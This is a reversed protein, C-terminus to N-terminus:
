LNYSSNEYNISCLYGSSPVYEIEIVDGNKIDNKVKGVIKPIANKILFVKKPLTIHTGFLQTKEKVQDIVQIECPESQIISKKFEKANEIRTTTKAYSKQESASWRNLGKITKYIDQIYKLHEYTYPVDATYKVDIGLYNSIERSYKIYQLHSYIHQFSEINSLDEFTGNLGEGGDIELSSFIQYRKFIGEFFIFLKSFYKINNISKGEWDTFDFNLDSKATSSDINFIHNYSLMNNLATGKFEFSKTGLALHGHIDELYIHAHSEKDVLWIRQIAPLKKPSITLNGDEHYNTIYEILKSGKAEFSSNSVVLERGHEVLNKHKNLFDERKEPKISMTFPVNEKAHLQILSCGDIYQSKISFRSDLDELYMRNAEHVNSISQSLRSTSVGTFSAMLTNIADDKAPLKQGQEELTLKESEAKWEHLVKDTYKDTDRDIKISCNSCLWIANKMSRRDDRSMSGDYRPGGKSAAYIHAAIGINNVDEDGSAAATSVRCDPNSCRLGVRERIKRIVGLTFNDRNSKAM